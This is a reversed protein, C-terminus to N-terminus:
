WFDFEAKDFVLGGCPCTMCFVSIMDVTKFVPGSRDTRGTWGPVPALGTWNFGWFGILFWPQISFKFFFFFFVIRHGTWNKFSHDYWTFSENKELSDACRNSERYVHSVICNLFTKILYKCDTLLPELMLNIYPLNTLMYVLM